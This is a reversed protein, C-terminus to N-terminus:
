ARIRLEKINLTKKTSELCSANVKSTSVKLIRPSKVWYHGDPLHAVEISNPIGEQQALLRGGMDYLEYGKIRVSGLEYDLRAFDSTPNPYLQIHTRSMEGDIGLIGNVQFDILKASDLAIINPATPWIVVVNIGGYRAASLTDRFNALRPVYPDLTDFYIQLTTDIPGNNVRQLIWITDDIM